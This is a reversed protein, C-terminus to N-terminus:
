ARSKGYDKQANCQRCEHRDDKLGRWGQDQMYATAQGTDRVETHLVRTCSNCRFVVTDNVREQSM